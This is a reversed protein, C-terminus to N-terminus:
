GGVFCIQGGPEDAALSQKVLDGGKASSCAAPESTMTM